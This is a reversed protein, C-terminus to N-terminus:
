PKRLGTIGIQNLSTHIDLRIKPSYHPSKLVGDYILKMTEKNLEGRIEIDKNTELSGQSEPFPPEDFDL